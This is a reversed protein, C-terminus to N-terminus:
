ALTALGGVAVSVAVEEASDHEQGRGNRWRKRGDRGSAAERVAIRATPRVSIPKRCAAQWALKAEIAELPGPPGPRGPAGDAGRTPRGGGGGGALAELAARAEATGMQELAQVARLGRLREPASVPGALAELLGEVRRRAEPS